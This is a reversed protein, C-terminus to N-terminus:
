AMPSESRSSTKPLRASVRSAMTSLTASTKSLTASTISSMSTGEKCHSFEVATASVTASTRSATSTLPARSAMESKWHSPLSNWSHISPMSQVSMACSRPIESIICFRCVMNSSARAMCSERVTVHLGSVQGMGPRQSISTFKAAISESSYQLSLTKKSHPSPNSSIHAVLHLLSSPALSPMMTAEKQESHSTAVHQLFEFSEPLDNWSQVEPTNDPSTAVTVTAPSSEFPLATSAGGVSSMWSVGDADVPVMAPSSKFPPATSAGVTSSMWSVRDSMGAVSPARASDISPDVVAAEASSSAGDSGSSPGATGKSKSDSKASTDRALTGSDPDRAIQTEAVRAKAETPTNKRVEM